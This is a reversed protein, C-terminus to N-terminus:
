AFFTVPTVAACQLCSDFSNVFGASVVSGGARGILYLHANVSVATSQSLIVPCYALSWESRVVGRRGFM